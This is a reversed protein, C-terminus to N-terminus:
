SVHLLFVISALCCQRSCRLDSSSRHVDLHVFLRSTLTSVLHSRVDCAPDDVSSAFLERIGQVQRESVLAALSVHPILSVHSVLSVHAVRTFRAIRATRSQRRPTSLIEYLSFIFSNSSKVFVHQRSTSRSRVITTRPPTRFDPLVVGCSCSWCVHGRACDQVCASVVCSLPPARTNEDDQRSSLM